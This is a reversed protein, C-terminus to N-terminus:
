DSVGKIVIVDNEFALVANEYNSDFLGSFKAPSSVNASFTKAKLIIVNGNEGGFLTYAEDGVKQPLTIKLYARSANLSALKSSSISVFNLIEKSREGKIDDMINARMSTFVMLIGALILFGLAFTFVAGVVHAQGIRKKESKGVLGCVGMVM